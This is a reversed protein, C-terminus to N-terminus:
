QCRTWLIQKSCFVPRPLIASSGDGFELIGVADAVVDSRALVALLLPQFVLHTNFTSVPM